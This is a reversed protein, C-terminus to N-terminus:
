WHKTWNVIAVQHGNGHPSCNNTDFHIAVIQSSAVPQGNIDFVRATCTWDQPSSQGFAFDYHGPDYEGPNGSPHSLWNNGYCDVEIRAGNVPNGNADQIISQKSIAPGSCNPAVLPDWIIQGTFQLGSTSSTPTPTSTPPKKTPKPTPPKTTPSNMAPATTATAPKVSTPILLEQHTIIRNPNSLGNADMIDQVSVGYQAAIESLTEGRQVVHTAFEPLPTATPPQPTHTPTIAQPTEAIPTEVTTTLQVTPTVQPALTIAPTPSPTVPPKTPRTTSTPVVIWAVASPEISEFTPRPTRTPGVKPHRQEALLNFATSFIIYNLLGLVILISWHRWKMITERQGIQLAIWPV